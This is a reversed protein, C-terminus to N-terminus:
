IYIFSFFSFCCSRFPPLPPAHETVKKLIDSTSLPTFGFPGQRGHIAYLLIGFSYIDGKQTGQLPPDALRLLEPSRYLLGALRSAPSTLVCVFFSPPLFFKLYFLCPVAKTEFFQKLFFHGLTGPTPQWINTWALTFSHSSNGHM